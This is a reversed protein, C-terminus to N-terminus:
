KTMLRIRMMENGGKQFEYPVKKIECEYGEAGLRSLVESVHPSYETGFQGILPFVRVEIAVRCLERIADLHFELSLVNSDTFLFHACLALDFERDRFPLKPLESVRYRGQQVGSPFDEQFQKMAQQRLEGLHEISRIERWVFKDETQRTANLITEYTKDIQQAIETASFQYIPDCSVVTTGLRYLQANFSSPGAACDLIRQELDSGKLDFMLIYEELSRGWPVVNQLDVSM